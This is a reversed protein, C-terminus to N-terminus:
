AYYEEIESLLKDVDIFHFLRGGLNIVKSVYPNGEGASVPRVTDGRVPVSEIREVRDVLLGLHYVESALILIRSEVTIPTAPRGFFQALDVVAIVKGRHNIVGRTFAPARPVFSFAPVEIVKDVHGIELGYLEGSLQFSIAQRRLEGQSERAAERTATTPM